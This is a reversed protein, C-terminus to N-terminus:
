RLMLGQVVPELSKWAGLRRALRAFEPVRPTDARARRRLAEMAFEVPIRRPYRWLDIVTRDPGTVRAAVGHVPLTVIGLVPDNKLDITRAATQVVQVPAMQSRPPTSGKPVLLWTGRSFAETLDRFLAATLLGM